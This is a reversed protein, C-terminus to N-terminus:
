AHGRRVVRIAKGRREEGSALLGLHVAAATPGAPAPSSLAPPASRQKLKGFCREVANREKYRARDFAPPRGGASGRSRRHKKQDDM